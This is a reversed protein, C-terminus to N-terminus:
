NFDQAPPLQEMGSPRGNQGENLCVVENHYGLEGINRLIAQESNKGPIVIVGEFGDLQEPAIIPRGLLTQKQYSANRDVFCAIDMDRLCTYTLLGKTFASVGWVACKKGKLLSIQELLRTGKESPAQLSALVRREDTPDFVVWNDELSADYQFAGRLVPFIGQSQTSESATLRWGRMLNMLSVLSFNNIHEMNVSQFHGPFPAAKDYLSCDPVEIVLTGDRKLWKGVNRVAAGPNELHEMVMKLLIVDFKSELEKKDSYASGCETSFGAGRLKEMLPEDTDMGVVNAYGRDKLIGIAWGYGCGVDLIHAHKPTNLHYQIFDAMNSNLVADYATMAAIQAGGTYSSYYADLRSFDIGEHFVAGCRKCCSIAQHDFLGQIGDFNVLNIRGIERKEKSGCIPCARENMM